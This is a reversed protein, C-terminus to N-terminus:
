RDVHSYTTAAWALFVTQFVSPTKASTSCSIDSDFEGSSSYVTVVIIPPTSQSNQDQLLIPGLADNPTIFSIAVSVELRDLRSAHNTTPTIRTTNALASRRIVCRNRFSNCAFIM